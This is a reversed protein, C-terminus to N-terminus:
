FCSKKGDYAKFGLLEANLEVVKIIKMKMLVNSQNSDLTFVTNM